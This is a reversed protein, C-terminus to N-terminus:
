YYIWMLSVARGAAGAAAEAGFAAATAALPLTPAPAAVSVGRLIM